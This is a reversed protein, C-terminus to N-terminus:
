TVCTAHIYGREPQVFSNNIDFCTDCQDCKFINDCLTNEPSRCFVKIHFVKIVSNMHLCNGRQTRNHCAIKKM